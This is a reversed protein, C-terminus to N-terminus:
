WIWMAHTKEINPKPNAYQGLLSLAARLSSDSGDLLFTTDDAFQILKNEKEKITIGKIEGNNRVMIALIEACMIFIYPSVPDGQRCGRGINFFQSFIGNQIVCLKFDHNLIRIWESLNPGFNFFDIKKTHVAM